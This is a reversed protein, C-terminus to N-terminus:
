KQKYGKPCVPKIGTVKKNVKGKLCTITSKVAAKSSSSSAVNVLPLKTDTSTKLVITPQSYHFGYADVTFIGNQIKVSTTAVQSTGDPNVVSVEIRSSKTLSNGPWRCDLYQVPYKTRFFGTNIEGTSLLHASGINFKLTERDTMYPQGAGIANSATFGYGTEACEDSYFSGNPLSSWHDILFYFTPNEFDSKATDLNAWANPDSLSATLIPSGIFTYRRGGSIKEDLMEAQAGFMGAGQPRLWSSRISIKFKIGSSVDNKTLDGLGIWMTPTLRKYAPNVHKEPLIYATMSIKRPKGNVDMISWTSSNYETVQGNTDVYSGAPDLLIKAPFSKGNPLITNFSELCEMQTPTSCVRIAFSDASLKPIDANAPTVM